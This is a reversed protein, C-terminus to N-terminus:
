IHILSLDELGYINVTNGVWSPNLFYYGYEDTVEREQVSFNFSIVSSENVRAYLVYEGVELPGLGSYSFASDASFWTIQDLSFEVFAISASSGAPLSAQVAFEEGAAVISPAIEDIFEVLLEAFPDPEYVKINRFSSNGTAAPIDHDMAFFLYSMNGTFYQGIPIYFSEFDGSGSYTFDAIGLNETGYIQFARDASVVLDDDFGIAHVEGESTSRFDFELITSSTIEYPYNIRQWRNGTLEVTAGGDQISVVGNNEQDEEGGYSLLEARTFDIIDSDLTDAVSVSFSQIDEGFANIARLQVDEVGAQEPLWSIVGAEDINM